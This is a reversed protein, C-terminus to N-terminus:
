ETHTIVDGNDEKSLSLLFERAREKNEEQTNSKGAFSATQDGLKVIVRVGKTFIYQDLNTVDVKVDKFRSLKNTAHQAAAQSSRAKRFEETVLEKAREAMKVRTVDSRSSCGGRKRPQNLPTPNPIIPPADSSNTWCPPVINTGGDTLNYGGPYLSGLQQIWKRELENLKDIDCTELTSCQFADKGYQRIDIGLLHGSKHKTNCLAESVHTRFRGEAGFPRYRNHNKRHSRTQGVYKKGSTIHEVCYIIGRINELSDLIGNM